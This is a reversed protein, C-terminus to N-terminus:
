LVHTACVQNTEIRGHRQCRGTACKLVRQCLLRSFHSNFRSRVSSDFHNTRCIKLAWISFKWPDWFHLNSWNYSFCSWGLNQVPHRHWCSSFRNRNSHSFEHFIRFCWNWNSRLRPLTLSHNYLLQNCRLASKWWYWLDIVFATRASWGYKFLMFSLRLRWVKRFRCFLWDFSLCIRSWLICKQLHCHIDFALYSFHRDHNLRDRSWNYSWLISCNWVLKALSYRVLNFHYSHLGVFSM